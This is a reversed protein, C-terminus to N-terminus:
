ECAVKKFTVVRNEGRNVYLLGNDAVKWTELRPAQIGSENEVVVEVRSTGDKEFVGNFSFIWSVEESESHGDGSGNTIRGAAVTFTLYEYGPTNYNKFCYTGDKLQRTQPESQVKSNRSTSDAAITAEQQHKPANNCSFLCCVVLLLRQVIRM